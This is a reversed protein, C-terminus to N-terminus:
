GNGEKDMSAQPVCRCLILWRGLWSRHIRMPWTTGWAPFFGSRFERENWNKSMPILCRIRALCFCRRVIWLMSVSGGHLSEVGCRTSPFGTCRKRCGRKLRLRGPRRFGMRNEVSDLLRPYENEVFETESFRATKYSPQNSPSPDLNAESLILGRVHDRCNEAACLAIPGGLSHGYLIVPGSFRSPILETVVQAHAAVTYTFELPKESEGAGFLDILVCNKKRCAPM